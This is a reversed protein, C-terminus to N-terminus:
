EAPDGERDGQLETGQEVGDVSAASRGTHRGFLGAGGLNRRIEQRSAEYSRIVEDAVSNAIDRTEQDLRKWAMRTAVEPVGSALCCAAQGVWARRNGGVAELNHAAAVPWQKVVRAAWGLFLTPSALVEVAKQVLREIDSAPPQEYMGAQFDEWKWYPEYM